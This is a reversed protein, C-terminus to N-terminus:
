TTSQLQHRNSLLLTIHYEVIVSVLEDLIYQKLNLFVVSAVKNTSEYFQLRIKLNKSQQNECNKTSTTKGLIQKHNIIKFWDIVIEFYKRFRAIIPLNSKCSVPTRTASRLSLLSIKSVFCDEKILPEGWSWIPL